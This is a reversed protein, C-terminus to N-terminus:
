AAVQELRGFPALQPQKLTVAAHGKVFAAM